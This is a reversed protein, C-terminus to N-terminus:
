ESRERYKKFKVYVSMKIGTESREIVVNHKAMYDWVLKQMEGLEQIYCMDMDMVFSGYEQTYEIELLAGQVFAFKKVAPILLGFRIWEDEDFYEESEELQKMAKQFMREAIDGNKEESLLEDEETAKELESWDIRFDFIERM